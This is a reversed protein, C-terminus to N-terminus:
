GSHIARLREARALDNMLGAQHAQRRLYHTSFKPGHSDSCLKGPKADCQACRTVRVAPHAMGSGFGYSKGDWQWGDHRLARPRPAREAGRIAACRACLVDRKQVSRGRCWICRPRTM